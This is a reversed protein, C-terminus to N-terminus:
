QEDETRPLDRLRRRIRHVWAPGLWLRAARYWLAAAYFVLFIGAWLEANERLSTQVLDLM